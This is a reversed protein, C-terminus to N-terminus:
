GRVFARQLHVSANPQLILAPWEWAIRAADDEARCPIVILTV